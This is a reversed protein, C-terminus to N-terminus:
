GRPDPHICLFFDVYRDEHKGIYRMVDGDSVYGVIENRDNVVPLGSIGHEIFREIVRRVTDSEKVKYVQKIMIDQALM